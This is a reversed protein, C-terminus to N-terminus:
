VGLEELLAGADIKNAGTAKAAKEAELRQIVPKLKETNRLAAKEAPTKSTLYDRVQEATKGSVEALAKALISMGAFGSKDREVGWKGENLNSILADIAFVSDDVSEIGAAEDGLKQEAGHAAFKLLLVTPITFDRTQGNRFDLRVVVTGDEKITSSKLIKRKGSFEVIRGDTMQVSEEKPAATETAPAKKAM